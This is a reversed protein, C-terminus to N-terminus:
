GRDPRLLRVLKVWQSLTRPSARPEPDLVTIPLVRAVGGGEVREALLCRYLNGVFMTLMERAPHQATAVLEETVRPTSREAPAM